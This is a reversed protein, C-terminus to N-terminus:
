VGQTEESFSCVFRRTKVGKRADRDCIIVRPPLTYYILVQEESPLGSHNFCPKNRQTYICVYICMYIYIYMNYILMQEESPLPSHDFCREDKYQSFVFAYYVLM